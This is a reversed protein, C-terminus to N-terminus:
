VSYPGKQQQAINNEIYNKEKTSEWEKERQKFFM